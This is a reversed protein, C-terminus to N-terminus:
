IITIIPINKQLIIMQFLYLVKQPCAGIIGSKIQYEIKIFAKMHKYNNNTEKINSNVQTQGNKYINLEGELCIKNNKKITVINQPPKHDGKKQYIYHISNIPSKRIIDNNSRQRKPLNINNKQASISRYFTRQPQNSIQQTENKM